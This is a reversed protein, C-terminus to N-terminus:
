REESSGFSSCHWAIDKGDRFRGTSKAAGDIVGLSEGLSEADTEAADPRAEDHVLLREVPKLCVMGLHM